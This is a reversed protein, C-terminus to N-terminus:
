IIESKQMKNLIEKQKDDFFYNAVFGYLGTSIIGLLIACIGFVIGVTVPSDGVRLGLLDPFFGVLGLFSFYCGLILVTLFVCFRIKFRMFEKFEEYVIKQEKSLNDQKFVFRKNSM